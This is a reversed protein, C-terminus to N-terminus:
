YSFGLQDGIKIGNESVFGSNIELVYMSSDEISYSPCPDSTCPQVDEIIGVIKTDQGVFIMDLAIKTDKMWFSRNDESSFVFLMGENYGLSERNMLGISHQSPTKAIEVDVEIPDDSLILVKGTEFTEAQSACGLLFFIAM